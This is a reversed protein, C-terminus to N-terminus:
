ETEQRLSLTDIKVVAHEKRIVQEATEGEVGGSDDYWLNRKHM